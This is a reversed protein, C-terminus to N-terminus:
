GTNQIDTFMCCHYGASRKRDPFLDSGALECCSGSFFLLHCKTKFTKTDLLTQLCGCARVCSNMTGGGGRGEANM